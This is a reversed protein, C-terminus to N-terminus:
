GLILRAGCLKAPDLPAPSAVRTALVAAYPSPGRTRLWDTLPSADSTPAVYELTPGNHGLTFAVGAAALDAREIARGPSQYASAGWQRVPAVDPVAITLSRVGTAGNPHATDAPVREARPTEDEILFPAVQRYGEHAIALRWRVEYGDPRVRVMPVPEDMPVGGRAFAAADALLADTRLCYDVLGGGRQLPGWWRHAPSPEYFAILELYAGDAFPVLANHTGVLHRGGRVIRFGLDQYAAIAADLDPVAIVLHDIGTLM